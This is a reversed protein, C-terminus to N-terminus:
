NARLLSRRRPTAIERGSEGSGRRCPRTRQSACRPSTCPHHRHPPDRVRHERRRTEAPYVASLLGILGPRATDAMRHVAGTRTDAPHLVSGPHGARRRPVIAEDPAIPRRDDPPRV